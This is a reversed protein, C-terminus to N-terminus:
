SRPVIALVTRVRKLNPLEFPKPGGFYFGTSSGGDLNLARTLKFETVIGDSGLLAATEALTLSDTVLLAHRKKGDTLLVSRYARRQNNLGQVARGDDILFPGSQLADRTRPGLKFESPRLVYLRDATAAIVGSLLKATEQGHIKEGDAVILGLARYEPHFYGGNSGALGDVSRVAAAVKTGEPRDVVRLHHRPTEFFAFHLTADRNGSRVIKEVHRVGEVVGKESSSDLQWAASAPLSALLVLAVLYKMPAVYHREFM